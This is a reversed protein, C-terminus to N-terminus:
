CTSTHWIHTIWNCFRCHKVMTSKSAGDWIHTARGIRVGTVKVVVKVKKADICRDIPTSSDNLNLVMM